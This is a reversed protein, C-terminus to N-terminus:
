KRLRGLVDEFAPRERRGAEVARALDALQQDIRRCEEAAQPDQRRAQNLAALALYLQNGEEWTPAPHKAVLQGMRETLAATTALPAPPKARLWNALALAEDRVRAQDPVPAAMAQVLPQLRDRGEAPLLDPLLALHWSSWAPEAPKRDAAVPHEQRWSLRGPAKDPAQLAHHCAACDYEALEPWPGSRARMALLDARAEAGAWQGAQWIQAEHAPPQGSRNWHAPLNALFAATEYLLRPHGAAILDHNVERAPLGRAPDAPAGVHCGACTRALDLPEGLPVLGLSRREAAPRRGWGLEAHPELWREAPGHCAECGVGAPRHAPPAGPTAHCALCRLEENAPLTWGLLKVMRQSRPSSLTHYALAHPDQRAWVTYEHRGVAKGPLPELGGHCAQASCSATGVGAAPRAGTATPQARAQPPVARAAFWALALGAAVATLPPRRRM